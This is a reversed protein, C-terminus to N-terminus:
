GVGRGLVRAAMERSLQESQRGLEFRIKSVEGEMKRRGEDSIKAAAARAEELIKAELKSTETRVREREGAAVQNVRELEREYRRLLEGAKEQMTRADAKAGETRKEREEFVRLVPDFLLPKLVVVLGAFVVMMLVFTLDIDIDVGGSMLAAVPAAFAPALM